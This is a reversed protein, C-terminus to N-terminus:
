PVMAVPQHNRYRRGAVTYGTVQGQCLEVTVPQGMQQELMGIGPSADLCASRGKGQCGQTILAWRGEVVVYLHRGATHLKGHRVETQSTRVACDRAAADISATRLGLWVVLALLPAAFLIGAVWWARRQARQVRTPLAPGESM